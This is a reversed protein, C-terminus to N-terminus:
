ITVLYPLPHVRYFTPIQNTEKLWENLVKDIAAQLKDEDKYGKQEFEPWDETIEGCEEYADKGIKDLLFGADLKPVYDECIGIVITDGQKKGEKIADEICEKISDFRGHRWFEDTRNENWTYEKSGM